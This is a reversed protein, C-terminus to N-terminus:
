VMASPYRTLASTAVLSVSLVLIGVILGNVAAHSLHNFLLVFSGIVLWLGDLAQFWSVRLPAVGGALIWWSTAILFVGPLFDEAVVVPRLASYGLALPSAILWVGVAVDVWTIKKMAAEMSIGM